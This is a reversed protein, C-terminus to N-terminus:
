GADGLLQLVDGTERTRSSILDLVVQRLAKPESIPPLCVKDFCVYAQAEADTWYGSASLRGEDNVDILRVATHPHPLTSGAKILEWADPSGPNGVVIIEVPPYLFRHVALGYSAATEGYQQHVPVFASLTTAARERYEGKSTANALGTLAEVAPVNDGLPKDRFRLSGHAEPDFPIDFFGGNRGDWFATTMEGALEEAADQYGQRSTQFHADLLAITLYAYDSLLAPIGVHGDSTYSHRLPKEHAKAMLYDVTRVAMRKLEPRNLVWAAELYASAARSNLNTYHVSDVGPPVGERRQALPLSYYSEDAGQSGYFAGSEPDYLHANLYDVTHSAVTAYKEDGTTLHGHLYLRLLGLNGDLMKEFHPVSWDRTTSYRFFGHEERDYLGGGMMADLTKEVMDRYCSEGTVRYMHLLLEVSSVMPFKPQDGFGRHKPDYDDVVMQVVERVISEDVEAGSTATSLKGERRHRLEVARQSLAHKRSQYEDSVQVLLRKFEEPSVYTAGTIIDGNPTLFATTPWGGMNYRSNVDPRQDNDVRVPVFHKNILDIAEPDSYSTGDMVHCWHCWVASISLLIPKDESRARQFATNGWELWNVDHALNPRPSFRISSVTCRVSRITALSPQELRGCTLM